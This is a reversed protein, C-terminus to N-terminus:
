CLKDMMFICVESFMRSKNTKIGYQQREFTCGTRECESIYQLIHGGKNINVSWAGFKDRVKKQTRLCVVCNTCYNVCHFLHITCRSKMAMVSITIIVTITIIHVPIVSHNISGFLTLHTRLFCCCITQFFDVVFVGPSAFKGFYYHDVCKDKELSLM